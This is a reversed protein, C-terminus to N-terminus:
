DGQPPSMDDGFVLELATLTCAFPKTADSILQRNRMTGFLLIKEIKCAKATTGSFGAFSPL